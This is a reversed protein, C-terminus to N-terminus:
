ENLRIKISKEETKLIEQCIESCARRRGVHYIFLTGCISCPTKKHQKFERNVYFKNVDVRDTFAHFKELDFNSNSHYTFKYNDLLYKIKEKKCITHEAVRSLFREVETKKYITLEFVISKGKNKKFQYIRGYGLFDKIRELVERNSNYIRIMVQYAKIEKNKDTVKGLHINGEGDLFGAIYSWDM